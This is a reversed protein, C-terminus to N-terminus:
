VAGLNEGIRELADVLASQEEPSFSSLAQENLEALIEMLPAELDRGALTLHVRIVRRDERCRERRILSKSELRDLVGTITGGDSSIERTLVSILVGDGQWLRRLVQFQSATIDLSAARLEFERRLAKRICGILSILRTESM